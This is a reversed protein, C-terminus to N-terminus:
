SRIFRSSKKKVDEKEEIKPEIDVNKVSKLSFSKFTYVIDLIEVMVVIVSFVIILIISTLTANSRDYEEILLDSIYKQGIETPHPDMFHGGTVNQSNVLNGKKKDFNKYLNIFHTGAKHKEIVENIKKVYFDSIEDLPQVVNRNYPNYINMLYIQAHGEKLKTMITTLDKDLDALGEEVSKNFEEDSRINLVMDLIDEPDTDFVKDLFDRLVNNAGICLTIVDYDDINYNNLKELLVGSKDGSVAENTLELDYKEAFLSAYIKSKDDITYGETISDGLALYKKKDKAKACVLFLMLTISFLFILKKM